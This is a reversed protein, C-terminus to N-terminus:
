KPRLANCWNFQGNSLTDPSKTRALQLHFPKQGVQLKSLTNPSRLISSRSRLAIRSYFEAKKSEEPSISHQSGALYAGYGFAMVTDILSESMSGEQSWCETEKALDDFYPMTLFNSISHSNAIVRTANPFTQIVRDTAPLM